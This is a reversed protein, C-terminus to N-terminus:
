HGTELTRLVKHDGILQELEREATEIEDIKNITAARASYASAAVQRAEELMRTLETVKRTAQEVNKELFDMDPLANRDAAIERKRKDRRVRMKHLKSV